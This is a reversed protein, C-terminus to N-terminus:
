NGDTLKEAPPTISSQNISRPTQVQGPPIPPAGNTNSLDPKFGLATTKSPAFETGASASGPTRLSGYAWQGPTSFYTYEGSRLNGDADVYPAIWVRYVKPQKFVPEGVSGPETYGSNYGVAPPLSPPPTPVGHHKRMIQQISSTNSPSQAAANYVQEMSYCGKTHKNLKCHDIPTSACGALLVPAILTLYFYKSM